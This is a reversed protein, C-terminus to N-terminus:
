NDYIGRGAPACAGGPLHKKDNPNQVFEYLVQEFLPLDFFYRQQKMAEPARLFKLVFYDALLDGQAEMNFDSLVFQKGLFYEYSLNFRMAGHLWVLYGLQWQWVHVMEHVFLQKERADAVSFDSLFDEPHFYMEGNPTVATNKSQLGFWFFGHNHVKVKGYDISNGFVQRAMAIEGLTLAREHLEVDVNRVSTGVDRDNTALNTTTFRLSASAESAPATRCCASTGPQSFLDIAVIQQPAPTEVRSTRGEDDTEGDVTAGNALTLRYRIHALPSDQALRLLFQEDFRQPPKAVVKAGAVQAGNHGSGDDHGGDVDQYRMRQSPILKPPPSCGCRCEDNELALQKGCWSEPLRKGACVIVGVSRCAPCAVKDGELAIAKGCIDLASCASIVKGGATTKADLTIHHRRVKDEM